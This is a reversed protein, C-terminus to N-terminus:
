SVIQVYGVGKYVPTFLLLFWVICQGSMFSEPNLGESVFLSILSGQPRIDKLNLNDSVAM